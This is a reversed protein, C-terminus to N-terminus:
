APEKRDDPEARESHNLPATEHDPMSLWILPAINERVWDNMYRTRALSPVPALIPYREVMAREVQWWNLRVEAFGSVRFVRDDSLLDDWWALTTV